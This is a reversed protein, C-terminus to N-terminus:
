CTEKVRDVFTLAVLRLPLVNPYCYSINKNAKEMVIKFTCNELVTKDKEKMKHDIKHMQSVKQAYLANWAVLIPIDSFIYKFYDRSLLDTQGTEKGLFM